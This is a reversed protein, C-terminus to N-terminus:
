PRQAVTLSDLLALFPHDPRVGALIKRWSLAPTKPAVPPPPLLLPAEEQSNLAQSPAGSEKVAAAVPKDKGPLAASQPDKVQQQVKSASEKVATGAKRKSAPATPLAIHQEPWTEAAAGNSLPPKKWANPPAPVAPADSAKTEPGMSREEDSFADQAVSSDVQMDCHQQHALLARACCYIVGAGFVRQRLSQLLLILFM